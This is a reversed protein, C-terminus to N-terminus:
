MKARFQKLWAQWKADFENYPLGILDIADSLSQAKRLSQFFDIVTGTGYQEDIFQILANAYTWLAERPVQTRTLSWTWLSNLDIAQTGTLMDTRYPLNNTPEVGRRNLEWRAVAAVLPLAGRRASGRGLQGALSYLAPVLLYENFYREIQDNHGLERMDLRTYYLGGRRPSPLTSAGFGIAGGFRDNRRATQTDFSFVIPIKNQALPTLDCRYEDCLQAYMQEFQNAVLQVQDADRDHYTLAFHDTTSTREAGWFETDSIAKTRLWNTGSLRYFRTERFYQGDRYQIVDAWARDSGLWGTDVIAYLPDGDPPTGWVSYLALTDQRRRYDNPDQVSMFTQMDDNAQARVERAIVRELSPPPPPAATPTPTPTPARAPEPISAYMIGVGIGLCAALAIALRRWRPAAKRTTKVVTELDTDEGVHWEIDPSM